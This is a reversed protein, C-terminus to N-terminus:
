FNKLIRIRVIRQLLIRVVDDGIGNIAKLAYIIQNHEEDPSFGFNAQNIYPLAIPINTHQM